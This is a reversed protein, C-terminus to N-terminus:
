RRRRRARAAAIAARTVLYAVGAAGAVLFAIAIADLARAPLAHALFLRALDVGVFGACVVLAM